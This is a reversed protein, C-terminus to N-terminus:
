AVDSEVKDVTKQELLMYPQDASLYDHILMKLFADFDKDSGVYTFMVSSIIERKRKAM